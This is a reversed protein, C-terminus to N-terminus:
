RHKWSLYSIGRQNKAKQMQRALVEIGPEVAHPLTSEFPSATPQRLSPSTERPTPPSCPDRRAAAQSPPALATAQRRARANVALARDWPSDQPTFAQSPIQGTQRSRKSAATATSDRKRSWPPATYRPPTKFPRMSRGRTSPSSRGLAKRSTKTPARRESSTTASSRSSRRRCSRVQWM